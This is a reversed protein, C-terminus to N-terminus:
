LSRYDGPFPNLLKLSKSVRGDYDYYYGSATRVLLLCWTTFRAHTGRVPAMHHCSAHALPFSNGSNEDQPFMNLRVDAIM